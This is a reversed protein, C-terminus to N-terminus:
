LQIFYTLGAQLAQSRSANYYFESANLPFLNTLSHSYTARIGFVGIKTYLEFGLGGVFGFELQTTLPNTITQYGPIDITESESRLYSGYPGLLFSFRFTKSGIIFVAMVPLNIVKLNRTYLGISDRNETWGKGAYNVEIQLGIHPESIHRFVLGAQMDTLLNQEVSPTFSVRCINIGANIGIFTSSKFLDQADLKLIALFLCAFILIRKLM